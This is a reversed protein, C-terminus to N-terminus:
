EDKYEGEIINDGSEIQVAGFMTKLAPNIQEGTLESAVSGNPLELYSFFATRSGQVTASICKAKIDHYLMTAAQRKAAKIEDSKSPLVPWIVKYTLGDIRFALYYAANGSRDRGYGDQLIEGGLKEIQSMTKEMWVDPTSVGSKWYNIDEGYPLDNM